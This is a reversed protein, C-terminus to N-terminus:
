ILIILCIYFNVFLLVFIFINGQYELLFKDNAQRNVTTLTDYFFLGLTRVLYRKTWPILFPIKSLGQTPLEHFGRKRETVGYANKKGIIQVHKNKQM